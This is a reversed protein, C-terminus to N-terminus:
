RMQETLESGSKCCDRLEPVADEAYERAFVRTNKYAGLVMTYRLYYTEGATVDITVTERRTANTSFEHQGPEMPVAVFQGNKLTAIEAGKDMVHLTLASGQMEPPRYFYVVASGAPALAPDEFAAGGVACGCLFLASLTSLAVFRFTGMNM